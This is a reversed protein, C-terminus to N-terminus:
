TLTILDQADMIDDGPKLYYELGITDLDVLGAEETPSWIEAVDMRIETYHCLVGGYFRPQIPSVKPLSQGQTGPIKTDIFKQLVLDIIANFTKETAMADQLGYYGKLVFSHIVKKSGITIKEVRVAERTIEWGFIKNSTTDQFLEIFKNWDAANFREYDHVKGTGPVSELMIKLQARLTLDSM